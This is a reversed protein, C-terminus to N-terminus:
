SQVPVSPEEAEDEKPKRSRDERMQKYTKIQDSISKMEKKLELLKDTDEVSEMSDMLTTFQETLEDLMNNIESLKMGASTFDTAYKLFLEENFVGDEGVCSFYIQQFKRKLLTQVETLLTSKGIWNLIESLNDATVAPAPYETNARKGKLIKYSTTTVAQDNRIITYQKM